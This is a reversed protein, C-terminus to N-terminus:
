SGFILRFSMVICYENPTRVQLCLCGNLLGFDLYDLSEEWQELSFLYIYIDPLDLEDGWKELSIDLCAIRLEGDVKFIWYHLMNNALIGYDLSSAHHQLSM